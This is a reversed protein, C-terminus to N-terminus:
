VWGVFRSAVAGAFVKPSSWNLRCYLVFGLASKSGKVPTSVYECLNCGFTLSTGLNDPRGNLVDVEDVQNVMVLAKCVFFEERLFEPWCKLAFCAIVDAFM